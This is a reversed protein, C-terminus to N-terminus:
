AWSGARLRDRARGRKEPARADQHDGCAPKGLAMLSGAAHGHPRRFQEGFGQTCRGTDM